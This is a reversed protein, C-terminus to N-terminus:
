LAGPRYYKVPMAYRQGLSHQIPETVHQDVPRQLIGQTEAADAEGIRRALRDSRVEKREVAGEPDIQLLEVPHGLARHEKADLPVPRYLGVGGARGDLADFDADGLIALHQELTRARELAIVPVGLRRGRCLARVAPNM